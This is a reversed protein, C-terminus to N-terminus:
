KRSQVARHTSFFRRMSLPVRSKVGGEVVAFFQLTDFRQFSASADAHSAGVIKCNEESRREGVFHCSAKRKAVPPSQTQRPTYRTAPLHATARSKSPATEAM